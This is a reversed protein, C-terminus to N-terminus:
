KKKNYEKNYDHHYRRYYEKRCEESCTKTHPGAPWFEKNCVACIRKFYPHGEKDKPDMGENRKSIVDNHRCEESCFRQNKHTPWYDKKCWECKKSPFMHGDNSDLREQLAIDRKIKSKEGIRKLNCEHSCYLGNATTPWFEKGCVICTKKFCKHGEKDLYNGGKRKAYYMYNFCKLSCYNHNSRVPWFKEGCVPCVKQPYLHGDNEAFIANRKEIYEQKYKEKYVELYRKKNNQKILEHKCENSCTLKQPLITTFDKGCIVCTKDYIVPDKKKKPKGKQAELAHKYNCDKSCYIQRSVSPWFNNGCVPCTKQPYMHGDNQALREQKKLLYKDKDRQKKREVKEKKLEIEKKRQEELEEETYPIDYQGIFNYIIDITQTKNGNEDFSEHVYICDVFAELLEETLEEPHTYKHVVDLFKKLELVQEKNESLSKKIENIRKELDDQESDYSKGISEYQREPLIGSLYNEYLRKYLNDLENYRKTLQKLENSEDIPRQKNKEIWKERMENAFADEDINIKNILRQISTLVINDLVIESIAHSTCERVRKGYGGCRFSYAIGKKTHDTCVYLNSGCEGCLLLGRYKNKHSYYGYSVSKKIHRRKKLVQDWLEQSVIPEHTNEFTFREDDSTKRRTDTKFNTLITKRFVSHGLYEKTRLIQGITTPSWTTENKYTKGNNQEPHYKATYASPILINDASLNRAIENNGKGSAALEFIRKVVKSAVPDVVLKQKDDPLRNYGYPISGSCRIGERMKAQFVATIKNSTDKVYWENMINLFPTFDNDQPNNSDVNNNIAIFRVNKKPFIIETYMGVQLYNRGFRSMDKVIVTSVDGHEIDSLLKKFGPRNFNKGSYGDDTYHTINAFGKKKAYNELFNKQNIISNSDGQLEDDKSLREYLATILNSRIRKM